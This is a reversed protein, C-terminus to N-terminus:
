LLTLMIATLTKAGNVVAIRAQDPDIVGLRLHKHVQAAFSPDKLSQELGQIFEANDSGTTSGFFGELAYLYAAQKRQEVVAAEKKRVEYAAWAEQLTLHEEAVQTALDAANGRLERMYHASNGEIRARHQAEERAMDFKMTGGMVLAALDAHRAIQRAEALRGSPFGELKSSNKKGRGGKNGAEPFILALALAKQGQTINRRTINHSVVYDAPDAGQPLWDYRPEVGAIECARLRNRGDVLQRGDATLMIPHMLGNAKIDEALEKLEDDSMMRFAEAAPHITMEEDHVATDLTEAVSM